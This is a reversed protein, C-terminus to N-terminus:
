PALDFLCKYTPPNGPNTVTAREFIENGEIVREYKGYGKFTYTGGGGAKPVASSAEMEWVYTGPGPGEVKFQHKVYNTVASLQANHQQKFNQPGYVTLKIKEDKQQAVNLFVRIYFIGSGTKPAPNDPPDDPDTPDDAVKAPVEQKLMALSFNDADAKDGEHLFPSVKQTWNKGDKDSQAKQRSTNGDIGVVYSNGVKLNCTGKKKGTVKVPTKNARVNSDVTIEYSFEGSGPIDVTIEKKPDKANLNIAGPSGEVQVEKGDKEEFFKVTIKSMEAGDLLNAALTINGPKGDHKKDGGPHFLKVLFEPGNGTAAVYGVGGVLALLLLLVIVKGDGARRLKHRM